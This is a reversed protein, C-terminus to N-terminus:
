VSGITPMGPSRRANEVPGEGNPPHQLARPPPSPIAAVTPRKPPQSRGECPSARRGSRSSKFRSRSRLLLRERGPVVRDADREFVVARAEGFAAGGDGPPHHPLRGAPVTRVSNGEGKIWRSTRRPSPCPFRRRRHRSGVAMQRGSFQVTRGEVRVTGAQRGRLPSSNLSLAM